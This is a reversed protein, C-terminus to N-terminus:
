INTLINATTNIEWNDNQSCDIIMITETQCEFYFEHPLVQEADKNDHKKSTNFTLLM